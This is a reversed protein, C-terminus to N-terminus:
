RDGDRDPLATPLVTRDPGSTRVLLIVPILGALVLM